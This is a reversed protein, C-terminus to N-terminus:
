SKARGIPITRTAYKALRDRCVSVGLGPGNLLGARGGGGFQVPDAAVDEQLLFGGYSGEVFYLDERAAAVHRGAASLIATEGVQCGLQLGIGERQALKALRLTNFLGGNKSLRLNFYDCAKGSILQQADAWTVVSEDAIIPIPSDRRIVALGPVDGKPIPQELADIDFREVAGIFAKARAVDFAGNADLRISVEAGMIERVKAVRQIDHADGVKIKLFQIGLGKAQQANYLVQELRGASHV